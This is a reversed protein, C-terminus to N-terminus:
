REDPKKAMMKEIIAVLSPAYRNARRSGTEAKEDPAM